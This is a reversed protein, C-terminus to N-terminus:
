ESSQLIIAAAGIVGSSQKLGSPMIKTNRGSPNLAYRSVYEKVASFLPEGVQSVGGGIIIREPDFTNILSVFGVGINKFVEKVMCTIEEHGNIFLKFVQETSISKGIIESGLRAIATGSAVWEFCGKQGCTCEGYSPDIVMHGIDGANGREGSILKGNIYLGAGIGTSITVYIFHNSDKAAGVWKEALAAATADNELLVPIHFEQKFNEVIPVNIWNPLNPPCVITGEKLDLPGPSGIGIGVLKNERIPFDLLLKQITQKIMAVMEEAKLQKDTPILTNAHIKGQEDVIGIAVKTGGIDVGIAYNM